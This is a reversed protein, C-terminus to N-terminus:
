SVKRKLAELREQLADQEQQARSLEAEKKALQLQVQNKESEEMDVQSFLKHREAEIVRKLEEMKESSLMKGVILSLQISLSTKFTFDM